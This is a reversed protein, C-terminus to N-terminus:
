AAPPCPQREPALRPRPKTPPETGLAPPWEQVRPHDCGHRPPAHPALQTHPPADSTTPHTFPFGRAFSAPSLSASSAFFSPLSAFIDLHFTVAASPSTWLLNSEQLKDGM